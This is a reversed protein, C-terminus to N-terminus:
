TLLWLKIKAGILGGFSDFLFDVFDANRGIVFFQHVEDSLAYICVLLISIWFVLSKNTAKTTNIIARAILFGFPLFELLHLFRDNFLPAQPLKM